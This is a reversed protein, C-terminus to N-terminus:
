LKLVGLWSWLTKFLLRFSFEVWRWRWRRRLGVCGRRRWGFRCCCHCVYIVSEGDCVFIEEFGGVGDVVLWGDLLDAEGNGKEDEANEADDDAGEHGVVMDTTVSSVPQEKCYQSHEQEYRTEVICPNCIIGVLTVFPERERVYRRNLM